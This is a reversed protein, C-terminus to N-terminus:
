NFHFRFTFGQDNGGGFPNFGHYPNRQQAQEEADLPDDGADFRARKEQDTLVEKASAIDIFMKEAKKKDDGEYKDPHWKIALKRYAKLIEAKNASRRVGLIKYYDRKKSQKILKQVRQMGENIRSSDEIEHARKYDALAAEYNEHLVYAEARSVLIEADSVHYTDLVETCIKITETAPFKGRSMCTCLSSHARFVFVSSLPDSSLKLIERAKEICDNWRSQSTADNIIELQKALKKVKIYHSHCDKHDPDLKLCERINTLSDDADGISYFLQSIQFFARTNDPKLKSTAKLDHVAKLTDGLQLYCNARLERLKVAWPCHEVIESFIEAAKTHDKNRFSNEAQQMKQSMQITLDLLNHAESNSADSQLATQFDIKAENFDGQKLFVNGRQVRAGTFDPKLEIVKSLDSAASKSKGMALYVTARRFYALYSQPDADIASHFNTLADALQGTTLLVRGKELYDNVIDTKKMGNEYGKVDIILLKSFNCFIFLYLLFNKCRFTFQESASTLVNLFM